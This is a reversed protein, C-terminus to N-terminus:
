CSGRANSERHLRHLSPSPSHNQRGSAPKVNSSKRRSEPEAQCRVGGAPCRQLPIHPLGTRHVASGFREASRTGPSAEGAALSARHTAVNLPGGCYRKFSCRSKCRQINESSTATAGESRHRLPRALVYLRARLRCADYVENGAHAAPAGSVRQARRAFSPAM